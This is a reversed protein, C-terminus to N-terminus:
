EGHEGGHGRRVRGGAISEAWGDPLYSGPPEYPCRDYIGHRRGCKPCPSPFSSPPGIDQKRVALRRGRVTVIFTDRGAVSAPIEAAEIRPDSAM